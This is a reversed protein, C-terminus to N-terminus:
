CSLIWLRDYPLCNWAPFVYVPLDPRMFRLTAATQSALSSNVAVHVWIGPTQPSQPASNQPSKDKHREDFSPDFCAQALWFGHYSEPIVVTTM